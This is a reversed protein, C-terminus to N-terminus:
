QSAGGTGSDRRGEGAKHRYQLAILIGKAQDEVEDLVDRVLELLHEVLTPDEVVAFITYNHPKSGAFLHRFGAFIPVDQSIIRGMGQSEVVTAATTTFGAVSEFISDDWHAFTGLVEYTTTSVLIVASWAVFVGVFATTSRLREPVRCQHALAGGVLAWVLALLAFEGVQRGDTVLGIAVSGLALVSCTLVAVGV